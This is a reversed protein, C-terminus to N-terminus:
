LDPTTAAQPAAAPRPEQEEAMVQLFAEVVRPDFARRADRTINEIVHGRDMGARYPRDSVQADYCDAVSFIRAYLDIAEGELGAPYGKGDFREHHQLVIPIVEGYAAIPELIRAGIEVHSRMCRLEEDDLRGPKDLIPPPIGLKGIDHLLGGRHLIDLEQQPLGMVRGIRLALATVRESHGATWPSKADIARALAYLAGWNLADLEEVLRANALAVAVQDAVQRAQERDEPACTVADRYGLAVLGALRHQIFLPLVLANLLGDRALPALCAPLEAVPLMVAERHAGFVSAEEPELRIAEPRPPADPEGARRGADTYTQGGGRGDALLLTVAVGDCPVVERMRALVAAVIKRTDLAALVVRGIEGLAGLAHFQKGLRDAMTNFSGALEEFEDGSRISVRASFDRSAVRATGEKLQAIPGLSRRIQVLSLLLVVWFALLVVLPFTKAFEAVPALASRGPAALIVTWNPAGFGPLLFLSWYSALYSPGSEDWEFRGVASRAVRRAAAAPYAAPLGPSCYLVLAPQEVVCVEADAPLTSDPGIDWLYTTNVEAWLVGQGPDSPELARVMFIRISDRPDGRHVLLTKGAGLHARQAETLVPPDAVAGALPVARADGAQVALGQFRALLEEGVELSPARLARRGLAPALLRLQSELLLLREYMATGTAKAAQRLRQQSQQRLEGSVQIFSLTALAAMPVLACLIFLVFIRRAVKSRLFSAQIRM